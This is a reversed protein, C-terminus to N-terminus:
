DCIEFRCRSIPLDNLKDSHDSDFDYGLDESSVDSSDMDETHESWARKLAGHPLILGDQIRKFNRHVAISLDKLLLRLRDPTTSDIVNYLNQVEM